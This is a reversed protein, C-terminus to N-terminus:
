EVSEGGALLKRLSKVARHTSVKLAAISIGSQASAEKLSLEKLKLLEIAQRQAPPLLKVAALLAEKEFAATDSNAPLAAFTEHAPTLETEQRRHRGVRRLRDIIRRRAVAILWPLFPRAPDYTHRIQHLTILVDQLADEADQYHRLQRLALARLVPAIEMLLQCYAREDGSQAAAMLTQWAAAPVPAARADEPVPSTM